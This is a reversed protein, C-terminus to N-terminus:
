TSRRLPVSVTRYSLTCLNIVSYSNLDYALHHVLNIMMIIIMIIVIIMIIILDATIGNPIVGRIAMISQSGDSFNDLQSVMTIIRRRSRRIMILM